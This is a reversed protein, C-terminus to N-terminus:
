SAWLYSHAFTPATKLGWERFGVKWLAAPQSAVFDDRVRPLYREAIM